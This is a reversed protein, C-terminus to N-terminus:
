QSAHDLLRRNLSESDSLLGQSTRINDVCGCERKRRIYMSFLIVLVGVTSMTGAALFHVGPLGPVSHSADSTQTYICGGVTAGILLSLSKISGLAGMLLGQNQASVQKSAVSSVCPLLMMYGSFPLLSAAFIPLTPAWAILMSGLVNLSLSIIITYEEGVADIIYKVMLVEISVILATFTLLPATESTALKFQAELYFIFTSYLIQHNFGTIFYQSVLCWMPIHGPAPTGGRAASTPFLKAVDQLPNLVKCVIGMTSTRIRPPALASHPGTGRTEPVCLVAYALSVWAAAAAAAFAAASSVRPLLAGDALSSLTVAVALASALYGIRQAREKPPYLDSIMALYAHTCVEVECVGAVCYLVFTLNINFEDSLHGRLLLSLVALTSGM